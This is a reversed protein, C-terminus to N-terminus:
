VSSVGIKDPKKYHLLIARPGKGVPTFGHHIYISQLVDARNNMVERPVNGQSPMVTLFVDSESVDIVKQLLHTAVGHGRFDNSTCLNYLMLASPPCTIETEIGSFDRVPSASVCGVFRLSSPTYALFAYRSYQLNRLDMSCTSNSDCFEIAFCSKKLNASSCSKDGILANNADSILSEPLSQLTDVSLKCIVFDMGKKSVLRCTDATVM